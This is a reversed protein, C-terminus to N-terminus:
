RTYMPRYQVETLCQRQELVVVATSGHEKCHDRTKYKNLPVEEEGPFVSRLIRAARDSAPASECDATSRSSGWETHIASTNAKRSKAASRGAAERGQIYPPGALMNLERFLQFRGPSDLIEDDPM